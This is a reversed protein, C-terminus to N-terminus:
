YSPIIISLCNQQLIIMFFPSFPLSLHTPLIQHAMKKTLRTVAVLLLHVAHGGRLMSLLKNARPRRIKYLRWPRRDGGSLENTLCSGFAKMSQSM